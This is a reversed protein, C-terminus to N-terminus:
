RVNEVQKSFDKKLAERVDGTMKTKLIVETRAIVQNALDVRVQDKFEVLMSEATRKSDIVIQDAARRAETLIRVKATEAESRVTQLLSTIEADMSSLRQSYEQYQRQADSLKTSVRDLEDKLDTHRGKVFTQTPEKLLYFLGGVLIAFNIFPYLLTSISPAAEQV